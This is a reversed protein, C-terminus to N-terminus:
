QKLWPITNTQTESTIKLLYMGKPLDSIPLQYDNESSENALTKSLIEAGLTNILQIRLEGTSNEVLINLIDVAPNPYVSIKTENLEM